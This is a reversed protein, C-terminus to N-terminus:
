PRPGIIIGSLALEDSFVFARPKVTWRFRFSGITEDQRM